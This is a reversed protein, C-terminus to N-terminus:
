GTILMSTASLAKGIKKYGAKAYSAGAAYYDAGPTLSSLGTAVGGPVVVSLTQGNTVSEKALGFWNMSTSEALSKRTIVLRGSTFGRGIVAINSGDSDICFSNPSNSDDFNIQPMFPVPEATYYDGDAVIKYFEVTNATDESMKSNGLAYFAKEKDSYYVSQSGLAYNPYGFLRTNSLRYIKGFTPNTGTITVPTIFGINLTSSTAISIIGFAYTKGEETNYALRVSRLGTVSRLLSPEYVTGLTLSTGSITGVRIGISGNSNGVSFLVKAAAVDFVLGFIDSDSSVLTESGVTLTTGSSTVVAAYPTTRDYAVVVAQNSSDYTTFITASATASVTVMSGFTLTTGSISAAIVEVDTAVTDYYAIVVVDQAEHYVCSTFSTSASNFVVPTGVVASGSSYDVVVANGYNSAGKYAVVYKQTGPVHCVSVSVYNSAVVETPTDFEPDTSKIATGDSLLSVLDGATITGTATLKVEGSTGGLFSSLNSM